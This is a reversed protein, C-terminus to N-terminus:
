QTREYSCRNRAAAKMNSYINTQKNLSVDDRRYGRAFRAAAAASASVTSHSDRGAVGDAIQNSRAAALVLYSYLGHFTCYM